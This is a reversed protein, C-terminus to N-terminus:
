DGNLLITQNCYSLSAKHHTIMIIMKGKEALLKLSTLIEKESKEDMESFPEDLILLDFDHYIARALMIRQRQGGSINKGNETILHNDGDPCQASMRDIGAFSLADALRETDYGADSFTINKLISDNILFPQQKVYSIRQWYHQREFCTTSQHNFFIEGNDPTLFGLILNIITTKGQGSNGSIGVFDGPQLDFSFDKLISQQKYKFGTQQFKISQIQEASQNFVKGTKDEPLLDNLIFSYTKIQGTSNLIKVIGPIVKYSAAMFIGITLLDVFPTHMSWKNIAILIFFGLVAFVEILRSPLSQLSQQTAINKNLQEQYRDYRDVFFDNKGYINSEIYGSLSEQLHQISKEGTIKTHARIHKMKKRIFYALAIVPPSLLLFLLLFLSPHYCFIGIITCCILIGQSVVSQVNTLIYNSFEIPQQSIKRIRVSSDIAVFNIYDDNLYRLINQRSLRSSVEYFFSSQASTLLYGMWNKLSFLLFFLGPLLLPNGSSFLQLLRSNSTNNNKTYFNILLLLFGLFAIDLIGIILDFITLIAMKIKEKRGLIQAIKKVM